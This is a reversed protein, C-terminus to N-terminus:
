SRTSFFIHVIMAYKTLEYAKGAITKRHKICFRDTAKEAKTTIFYQFAFVAGTM